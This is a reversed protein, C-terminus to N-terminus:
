EGDAWGGVDLYFTGSQSATFRIKSYTANADDNYALVDGNATRLSLTTDVDNSGGTDFTEFVYSEGAQLTVAFWDRDGTQDLVGATAAADIQLTGSTAATGGVADGLPRSSSLFFTGTASSFGSVALFYQGSSNPTYIIESYLLNQDINADDNERIVLANSGHPRLISDPLGGPPLYVTFTYTEGALLNIAFWDSDGSADIQDAVFTGPSVRGNTFTNSGTDNEMVAFTVGADIPEDSKQHCALCGCQREHPGGKYFDEISAGADAMDGAADAPEFPDTDLTQLTM